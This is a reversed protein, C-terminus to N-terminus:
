LLIKYKEASPVQDVVVRGDYSLSAYIWADAVSWAVSYVSDEHQDMTRVKVDPADGSMTDDDDVWPTSSCSTVRWLNVLNDSGGTLVLQDHFPNYKACTVWHSHGGITKVPSSMNRLDWFIVRRDHGCTLLVQPKNPNYDVDCITSGSHANIIETTIGMTRSDFISLNPGRTVAGTTSSASEWAVAGTGFSSWASSNEQQLSITGECKVSSDSIAFLSVKDAEAILLSDNEPHWKIAHAYTEKEAPETISSVEILDLKDVGKYGGSSAEGSSPMRWLTVASSSTSQLRSQHSTVVLNPDLPSSDLTWIQDPHSYLGSADLKNLDEDYEIIYLENNEHLTCTGAIFRHKDKSGRLPALARAAFACAYVCQSATNM